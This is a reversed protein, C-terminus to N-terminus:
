NAAEADIQRTRKRQLAEKPRAKKLFALQANLEALRAELKAKEASVNEEFKDSVSRRRRM